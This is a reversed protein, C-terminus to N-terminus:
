PKAAEPTPVSRDPWTRIVRNLPEWWVIRGDELTFYATDTTYFDRMGPNQAALDALPGTGAEHRQPPQPDLTASRFGAPDRRFEEGENYDQELAPSTIAGVKSPKRIVDLRVLELRAGSKPSEVVVVDTRGKKTVFELDRGKGGGDRPKDKIEYYYIREVDKRSAGLVFPTSLNIKMKGLNEQLPNVDDVTGGVVENTKVRFPRPEKLWVGKGDGGVFQKTVLLSATTAGTPDVTLRQLAFRVESTVQVAVEDSAAGKLLDTAIKPAFRSTLKANKSAFQDGWEKWPLSQVPTEAPAARGALVMVAQKGTADLGSARAVLSARYTHKEWPEVSDDKIVGQAAELDKLSIMGDKIGKGRIVRWQASTRVEVLVGVRELRVGPVPTWEVSDNLRPLGGRLQPPLSITLGVAGVMDQAAITPAPLEYLYFLATGQDSGRDPAAFLWAPYQREALVAESRGKMQSVYDPVPKLLPEEKAALDRRIKESKDQIVQPTVDKPRISGDLLVYSVRGACLVAILGVALKEGHNIFFRNASM